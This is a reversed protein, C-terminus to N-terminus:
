EGRRVWGQTYVDLKGNIEKLDTHLAGVEKRLEKIESKWEDEHDSIRRHLIEKDRELAHVRDSLRGQDCWLRVLGGIAVILLLGLLHVFELGLQHILEM